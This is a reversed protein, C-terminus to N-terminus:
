YVQGRSATWMGGECGLRPEEAIVEPLGAAGRPYSERIRVSAFERQDRIRASPAELEPGDISPEILRCPRGSSGQANFGLSESLL